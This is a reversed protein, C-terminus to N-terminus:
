AAYGAPSRALLFRIMRMRNEQTDQFKVEYSVPQKQYNAGLHRLSTEVDESTNYPVGRSILRFGTIWFEILANTYGAIATLFMGRPSLSSILRQLIDDLDPVYYFVHNALVLDFGGFLGEPLTASDSIATTTFGKSRVVAQARVSEAPEVLTLKLCRRRGASKNWFDRRSVARDAVLTSCAFREETQRSARFTHRMRGYM